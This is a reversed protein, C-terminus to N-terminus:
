TVCCPRSDGGAQRAVKPSSAGELRPKRMQLLRSLSGWTVPNFRVPLKVPVRAWLLSRRVGAIQRNETSAPRGQAASSGPECLMRM